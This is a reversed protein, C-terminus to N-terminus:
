MLERTAFTSLFPLHNIDKPVGPSPGPCNLVGCEIAASLLPVDVYGVAAVCADLDEISVTLKQALDLDIHREVVRRGRRGDAGLGRLVRGPRLRRARGPGNADRGSRM